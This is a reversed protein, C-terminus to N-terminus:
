FGDELLLTEISEIQDDQFLVAIETETGSYDPTKTLQGLLLGTFLGIILATGIALPKLVRFKGPVQAPQMRGKIRTFLFPKVQLAKEANLWALTKKLFEMKAKCDSCQELHDAVLVADEKPLSNEIFFILKKETSKCDM